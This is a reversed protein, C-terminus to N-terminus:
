ETEEPEPLVGDCVPYAEQDWHYGVMEEDLRLRFTRLRELADQQLDLHYYLGDICIMNWVYASDEDQAPAETEQEEPSEEAPQDIRYSRERTGHVLQCDLGLKQCLYYTVAAFSESNGVGECLLRYVSGGERDESYVFRSTLYSYILSLKSSSDPAYQAYREASALVSDAEAQMGRLTERDTNYSFHLEVVRVNGSQPYIALSIEPTQVMKNPHELCYRLVKERLDEETYGSIRLTISAGLQDLTETILEMARDNGRVSKIAEIESTSRRYVADVTVLWGDSQQTHEYEMYDIAYAGLPDETKMAVFAESLAEERDGSYNEALLFQGHEVGETVFRRLLGLMEYYSTVSPIAAESEVETESETPTTEEKYAYPDYHQSVSLYDDGILRNCGSCLSGLALVLALALIHLQRVTKKM